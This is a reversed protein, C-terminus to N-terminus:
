GLSSKIKTLYTRELNSRVEDVNKTQKNATNGMDVIFKDKENIQKTLSTFKEKMAEYEVDHKKKEEIAAKFKALMKDM